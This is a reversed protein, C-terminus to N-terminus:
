RSRSVQGLAPPPQSVGVSPAFDVAVPAWTDKDGRYGPLVGELRVPVVKILVYDAPFQPYLRSNDAERRMALKTPLDDVIEARGMISVYSRSEPEWYYLTAQQHVRIQAVKRTNPRTAVWIVFEATPPFGDVVRSRPQGETDVTILAGYRVRQILERALKLVAESEEAVPKIGPGNVGSMDASDEAWAGACCLWVLLVRKMRKVM